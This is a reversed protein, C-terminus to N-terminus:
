TERSGGSHDMERSAARSGMETAHDAPIATATMTLAIIIPPRDVIMPTLTTTDRLSVRWTSKLRFSVVVINRVCSIARSTKLVTIPSQRKQPYFLEHRCAGSFIYINNCTARSKRSPGLQQHSQALSQELSGTERIRINAGREEQQNAVGKPTLQHQGAIHTQRPRQRSHQLTGDTPRLPKASLRPGSLDCTAVGARHGSAPRTLHAPRASGRRPRLSCARAVPTHVYLLPVEARCCFLASRVPHSILFQQPRGSLSAIM